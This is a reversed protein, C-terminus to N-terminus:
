VARGFFHAVGTLIMEAALAALAALVLGTIKMAFFPPLVFFIKLWVSVFFHLM